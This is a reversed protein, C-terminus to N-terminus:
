YCPINTSIQSIELDSKIHNFLLSPNNKKTKQLVKTNNENKFLEVSLYLKRNFAVLTTHIFTVIEM